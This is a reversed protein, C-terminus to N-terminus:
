SSTALIFSTPATRGVPDVAPEQVSAIECRGQALVTIKHATSIKFSLSRNPLPKAILVEDEDSESIEAPAPIHFVQKSAKTSTYSNKNQPIQAQTEQVESLTVELKFAQCLTTRLRETNTLANDMYSEVQQLLVNVNHNVHPAKAMPPPSVDM